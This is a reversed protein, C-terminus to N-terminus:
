LSTEGHRRYAIRSSLTVILAPDKSGSGGLGEGKVGGGVAKRVEQSASPNQRRFLTDMDTLKCM